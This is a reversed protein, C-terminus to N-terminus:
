AIEKETITSIVQCEATSQEDNEEKWFLTSRKISKPFFVLSNVPFVCEAKWDVPAGDILVGRQECLRKIDGNSMPKFSGDPEKILSLPLAPQLSRLWELNTLKNEMQDSKKAPPEEPTDDM